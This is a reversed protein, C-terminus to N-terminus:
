DFAVKGFTITFPFFSAFLLFGSTSHALTFPTKSPPKTHLADSVVAALVHRAAQHEDEAGGAAVKGGAHRAADGVDEVAVAAEGLAAVRGHDLQQRQLPGLVQVADMLYGSM